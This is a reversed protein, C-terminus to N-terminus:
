RSTVGRAAQALGVGVLDIAEATLDTLSDDGDADLWRLYASQVAALSVRMM